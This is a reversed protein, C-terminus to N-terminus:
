IKGVVALYVAFEDEGDANLFDDTEKQLYANVAYIGANVGRRRSIFETLTRCRACNIKSGYKFIELM